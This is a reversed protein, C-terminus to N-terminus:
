VGEGQQELAARAEGAAVRRAAEPVYRELAHVYRRLYALDTAQADVEAEAAKRAKVQQMVSELRRQVWEICNNPSDYFESGGPTLSELSRRLNDREGTLREVEALLTDREVLVDAIAKRNFEGWLPAKNHCNAMFRLERLQEPTVAARRAKIAAIDNM